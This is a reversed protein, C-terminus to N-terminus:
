LISRGDSNEAKKKELLAGLERITEESYVAGSPNNPSNILVAATKGSIGAALAPLDLDFNEKCPVTVM